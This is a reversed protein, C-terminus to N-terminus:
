AQVKTIFKDKMENQELLSSIRQNLTQIENELIKNKEILNLNEECSKLKSFIIKSLSQFELTLENNFHKQRWLCKIESM